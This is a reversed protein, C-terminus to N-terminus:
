LEMGILSLLVVASANKEWNAVSYLAQNLAPKEEKLM